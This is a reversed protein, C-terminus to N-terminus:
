RIDVSRSTSVAEARKPLKLELVGNKYEAGIDETKIGSVDFSRQFSGYSRERRLYSGDKGKEEKETKHEASVTLCDGDVDVKIDSKDFGPLEAELIYADGVDKIDTKFRSPADAGFFAREMEGFDRWPDYVESKRRDFPTIDFM